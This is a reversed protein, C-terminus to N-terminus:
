SSASSSRRSGAPRTAPSAASSSRSRDPSPSGSPVCPSDFAIVAGFVFVMGKSAGVVTACSRAPSCSRASPSCWGLVGLLVALGRPLMGPGMAGLSGAALERSQWLAFAAIAILVLGGVFGQPAKIAYSSRNPAEGPGAM